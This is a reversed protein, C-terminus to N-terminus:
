CFKDLLYLCLIWGTVAMVVWSALMSETVFREEKRGVLYKYDRIM